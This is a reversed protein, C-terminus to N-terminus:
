AHPGATGPALRVHLRWPRGAELAVAFAHRAEVGQFVREAGSESQSVTEIPAREITCKRDFWVDLRRDAWRDVYAVRTVADHRATAGFHPPDATAGDIEIFRDAAQRVHLGLNLDIDLRGLRPRKSEITYVVELSGDIGVRYTKRIAPLEAAAHELTVEFPGTDLFVFCEGALDHEVGAELWRDVFSDRGRVDLRDALEALGAEKVRVGAHISEGAEFGVRADKLARHYYEARRALTDGYNWLGQRDDFAWLRAGQSSIWAAWASTELLADEWGDLDIDGREVNPSGPALYAEAAILERYLASRLHPLYLGGFVGHWYPCNCQARWLRTQAEKWDPTPTLPFAEGGRVMSPHAHLLRSARLSRKHLRNSEPYRSLFNRWHGGRLLDLAGDGFSERLLGAARHYREQARPPLAWEQMEHYSATPLYVLGSPRHHAIAEAPTRLEIWPNAALAAVFHELWGDHYCLTNTGPWLGFKEGDDGHFAIRGEGTEAVRRLLDVTREPDEFPISYRLERHIPFVRVPLGQDETEFYGWLADRELGAAIFHADDVATYEVGALALSSALGPEWVRETLWAGHPRRGLELELWDSMAAIQGRRDAEPIAPLVPEFFGGGWLEVQGRDVLARLRTLYGKEHLAIWQLLPGSTHLGIRLAPHAELFELFPAYAQGYAHRFVDDFNGVPQHEHLLIVFTVPRM